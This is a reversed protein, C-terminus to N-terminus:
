RGGYLGLGGAIGVVAEWKDEDKNILYHFNAMILPTTLANKKRSEPCSM